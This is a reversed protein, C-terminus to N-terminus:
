TVGQSHERSNSYKTIASKLLYCDAVEKLLLFLKILYFFWTWPRNLGTVVTDVTFLQSESSVVNSPTKPLVPRFLGHLMTKKGLLVTRIVSLLPRNNSTLFPCNCLVGIAPFMGLPNRSM